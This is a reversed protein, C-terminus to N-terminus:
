LGALNTVLINTLITLMKLMYQTMQLEKIEPKVQPKLKVTDMLGLFSVMWNYGKNGGFLLSRIESSTAPEQANPKTNKEISIHHALPTKSDLLITLILPEPLFDVSLEVFFSSIDSLTNRQEQSSSEFMEHSLLYQQATKLNIRNRTKMFFVAQNVLSTPIGAQIAVNRAHLNMHGRQIGEISMARLAAFNQALGVSAMVQAIDTASPFGMIQLTNVYSPNTSIAGGKTGVSIPLEISGKLVGNIVKYDSLPSYRGKLAAFSHAASEIARWDQGLAIAVADIGNM